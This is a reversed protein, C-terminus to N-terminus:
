AAVFWGSNVQAASVGQLLLSNAGLSVLAGGSADAVTWVAGAAIQIRDGQAFVFDTVVDADTQTNLVFRDAGAGGTLVDAGRWGALVNDADNGVVTDNGDGGHAREIVTGAAIRVQAGDITSLAGPRLDILSNASVAAANLTDTGAVDTLTARTADAAVMEAFEDTFVLLDDESAAKGYATLGFDELTGTGKGGLDQVTVTWTGASGEGWHAVSTFVYNLTTQGEIGDANIRTSWSPVWDPSVGPRDMLVSQTGGPSTLTIKLDGWWGHDALVGFEVWEVDIDDTVTFTRTLGAASQDPIAGSADTLPGGAARAENFATSQREWSEALRVAARADAFGFGYDPSYHMGGGNWTGAGNVQWDYREYTGPAGTYIRASAALIEQVDRYGLTPNAELMLASVGAVVPSAASTGNMRDTYDGDDYGPTFTTSFGATGLWDTTVTRDPYHPETPPLIINRDVAATVLNTTGPTSYNIIDGQNSGAAVTIVHRDNQFDTYNSNDGEWRDNGAAAVMVTGLGGRGTLAAATLAFAFDETASFMGNVQTATGFGWSHNVVDFRDQQAMMADQVTQSAVRFVDAGSLTAGYAVGAGGIGNNATEAVIGAVATGHANITNSFDTSLPDMVQGAVRTHLAGDYNSTLDPHTYQVGSDYIGVSVGRGTYDDWVPVVNADVGPRGGFQGTNLLHWQYQFLPDNPLAAM